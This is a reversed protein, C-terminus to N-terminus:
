HEDEQSKGLSGSSAPPKVSYERSVSIADNDRIAVVRGDEVVIECAMVEPWRDGVKLDYFGEIQGRVIEQGDQLGAIDKLNQLLTEKHAILKKKTDFLSSVDTENSSASLLTAEIRAIENEIDKLVKQTEMGLESRLRPTVRAKVTVSRSVIMM